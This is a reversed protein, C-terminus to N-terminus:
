HALSYVRVILDDMVEIHIEYPSSIDVYGYEEICEEYGRQADDITQKMEEFSTTSGQDSQNMMVDRDEWICNDSVACSFSFEQNSSGHNWGYRSGDDIAVTLIGDSLNFELVEPAFATYTTTRLATYASFISDYIDSVDYGSISYTSISLLDGGDITVNSSEAVYSESSVSQGNVEYIQNDAGLSNFYLSISKHFSDDLIFKDTYDWHFDGSSLLFEGSKPIYEISTFGGGMGEVTVSEMSSNKYSLVFARCGYDVGHGTWVLCEPVDNDDIYILNYGLIGDEAFIEESYDAYAVLAEVVEADASKRTVTDYHYNKWFYLRKEDESTFSEGTDSNYNRESLYVAKDLDGEFYIADDINYDFTVACYVGTSDQYKSM